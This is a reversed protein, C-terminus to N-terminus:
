ALKRPRVIIEDAPRQDFPPLPARPVLPGFGDGGFDEDADDQRDIWAWAQRGNRLETWAGLYWKVFGERPNGFHGATLANLEYADENPVPEVGALDLRLQNANQQGVAQKTPSSDPFACRVDEYAFHGLSDIRIRLPGIAIHYAGNHEIYEIIEDGDADTMLGYRLHKYVKFGFLQGDDGRSEQHDLLNESYVSVLRQGLRIMFRRLADGDEDTLRALLPPPILM